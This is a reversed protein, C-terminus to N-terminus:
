LFIEWFHHDIIIKIGLGILIFGGAAEAKKEFRSGFVNGIKVGAASMAFTVIGILGITVMARIMSMYDMALSIGGALADISTAIAMVFMTKFSLDAQTCGCDEEDDKGFAERLMNVGILALLGFAVWHDFAQIADAFLSGVRRSTVTEASPIQRDSSYTELAPIQQEANLAQRESSSEPEPDNLSSPEPAEKM